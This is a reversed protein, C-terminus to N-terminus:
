HELPLAATDARAQRIWRVTAALLIVVGLVMVVKSIVVGVVAITLGFAVVVPLFSPGPLHVTESPHSPSDPEPAM